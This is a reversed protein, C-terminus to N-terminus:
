NTKDDTPTATWDARWVISPALLRETAWGASQLKTVFATYNEDIWLRSDTHVAKSRDMLSAIVIAHIFSQLVDAPTAQKHIIVNIVGKKKLLLYKAKKYFTASESLEMIDSHKLVSVKVGLNIHKYLLRASNRTSWPWACVPLVHEMRSVQHPSLVQSTEMFHHVLLFSRENNLTTLSLCCVAMYNAYMHFVTLSLFSIWVALPHGRTIHALIMGLAMGVMTAVTEQSGEKASIDAANNELSFHQTLAARTAGSAVGTFSRSLSGLCVIVILASPFLPSVLDLLMGLDNMFDAVLRWMKANSDLNSGQYFTFLIGGLM